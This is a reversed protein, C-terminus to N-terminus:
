PQAPAAPAVGAAPAGPAPPSYNAAPGPMAGANGNMPGNMGVPPAGAYGSASGMCNGGLCPAPFDDCTDCHTCGIALAAVTLAASLFRFKSM